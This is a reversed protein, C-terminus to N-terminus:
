EGRILIWVRGFPREILVRANGAGTSDFSCIPRNTEAVPLDDEAAEADCDPFYEARSIVIEVYESLFKRTIADDAKFYVLYGWGRPYDREFEYAPEVTVEDVGDPLKMKSLALIEDLHEM